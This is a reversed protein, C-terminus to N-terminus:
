ADPTASRFATVTADIVEPDVLPCDATVRVVVDARLLGAAQVYRDLVDAESGRVCAVGLRRTEQAVSEDAPERTTAVAVEDLTRAAQVRRVTWELMTCGGIRLLVKGPLRTSAMRAQIVAVVRARMRMP